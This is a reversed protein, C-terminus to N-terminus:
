FIRMLKPIIVDVQNSIYEAIKDLQITVESDTM